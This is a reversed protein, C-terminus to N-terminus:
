SGQFYPIPWLAPYFKIYSYVLSFDNSIKMKLFAEIHFIHLFHFFLYLNLCFM